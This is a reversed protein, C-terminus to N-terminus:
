GLRWAARVTVHRARSTTTSSRARRRETEERAGRAAGARPRSAGFSQVPSEAHEQGGSPALVGLGTRLGPGASHGGSAPERKEASHVAQELSLSTPQAVPADRGVRDQSVAVSVRGRVEECAKSVAQEPPRSTTRSSGAHATQLASSSVVECTRCFWYQLVAASVQQPADREEGEREGEGERGSERGRGKGGGKREGREGERM